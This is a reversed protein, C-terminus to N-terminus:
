RFDDVPVELQRRVAVALAALVQGRNPLRESEVILDAARGLAARAAGCRTQADALLTELMRGAARLREAEAEAALARRIAAPWAVRMLGVAHADENRRFRPLGSYPSIVLISPGGWKPKRPIFVDADDPAGDIRAASNWPGPAAREVVILDARLDRALDDQTPKIDDSM